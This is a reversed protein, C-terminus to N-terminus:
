KLHAGHAIYFLKQGIGFREVMELELANAIESDVLVASLPMQDEVAGHSQLVRPRFGHLFRQLSAARRTEVVFGVIYNTIMKFENNQPSPTCVLEVKKYKQVLSIM